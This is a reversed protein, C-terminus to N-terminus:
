YKCPLYQFLSTNLLVLKIVRVIYQSKTGVLASSESLQNDVLSYYDSKCKSQDDYKFMMEKEFFNLNLCATKRACLPLGLQM